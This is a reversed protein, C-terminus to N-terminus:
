DTLEQILLYLIIDNVSNNSSTAPITFIIFSYSDLLQYYREKTYLGYLWKRISVKNDKGESFLKKIHTFLTLLLIFVNESLYTMEM